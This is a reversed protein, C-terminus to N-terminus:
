GPDRLVGAQRSAASSQYHGSSKGLLFREVRLERGIDSHVQSFIRRGTERFGGRRRADHGIQSSSRCYTFQFPWCQSVRSRSPPASCARRARRDRRERCRRRGTEERDPLARQHEALRSPQTIHSQMGSAVGRPPPSGAPREAAQLRDGHRMRMIIARDGVPALGEAAYRDIQMAVIAGPHRPRM